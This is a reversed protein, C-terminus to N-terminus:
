ADFAHMRRLEIDEYRKSLAPPLSFGLVTTIAGLLVLPYCVSYPQGAMLAVAGLLLAGIGLWAILKLTTLVFARARGTSGLWGVVSGLIGLASGAIAGFVGAQRDSWWGMSDALPDEGPGFQVLELPGIEVTGTGALVLNVVLTDPPSGGERNSFPLVFARWTSSGDLRGMPGSKDLTRSFFAGESLYNWMELYSGAAVREYKVRGRLAYRAARIGPREITVLPLSVSGTGEHVVRLTPGEAGEADAVVTGSKLADAAALEQWDIRRVVEESWASSALLLCCAAAPLVRGSRNMAPEKRNRGDEPSRKGTRM